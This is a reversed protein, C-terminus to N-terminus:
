RSRLLPQHRQCRANQLLRSLNKLKGSLWELPLISTNDKGAPIGPKERVFWAIAFSLQIRGPTVM